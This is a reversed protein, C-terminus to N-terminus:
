SYREVVLKRFGEQWEALAEDISEIPEHKTAEMAALWSSLVPGLGDGYLDDVDLWSDTDGKVQMHAAQLDASRHAPDLFASAEWHGLSWECMVQGGVAPYVYPAPRGDKRLVDLVSQVWALGKPAFTAGEGDMWGPKLDALEALRAPVRRWRKRAEARERKRMRRAKEKAGQHPLRHRLTTGQACNVNRLVEDAFFTDPTM